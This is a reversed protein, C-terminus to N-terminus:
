EQVQEYNPGQYVRQLPTSLSYPTTANTATTATTNEVGPREMQLTRKEAPDTKWILLNKKKLNMERRRDIQSRPKRPSWNQKQGVEYNNSLQLLKKMQEM